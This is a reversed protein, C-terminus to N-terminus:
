EEGWNNLNQKNVVGVTQKNNRNLLQVINEQYREPARCVAGPKPSLTLRKPDRFPRYAFGVFASSRRKSNFALKYTWLPWVREVRMDLHSSGPRARTGTRELPESEKGKRMCCSEMCSEFSTCLRVCVCVDSQCRLTRPSELLVLRSIRLAVRRARRVRVRVGWGRVAAAVPSSSSSRPVCGKRQQPPTLHSETVARARGWKYATM